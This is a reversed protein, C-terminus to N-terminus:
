ICDDWYEAWMRAVKSDVEAVTTQAGLSVLETIRDVLWTGRVHDLQVNPLISTWAERLVEPTPTPVLVRGDPLTVTYATYWVKLCGFPHEMYTIRLFGPVHVNFQHHVHEQASFRLHHGKETIEAHKSAAAEPYLADIVSRAASSDQM